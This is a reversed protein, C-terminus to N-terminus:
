LDLKLGLTFTKTFPLGYGDYIGNFNVLEPDNGTFKTVTFLNNATVYLYARRLTKISNKISTIRSLDYGMSASRLKLYSANELFLDQDVRYPNTGSWVNYIPYKELDVDQQWQFIERIAGIANKDENNVFDYRYSARQNLADIGLAYTFALNLDFGKYTLTHNFGGYFQPTYRGKLVKDDDNIINDNNQDKWRADGVEFPVGNNNLRVGNTNTPIESINEYIGTNEFLWFKDISEGVRLLRNGEVLETLGDPLTLLENKNWNFNLSTSWGVKNEHVPLIQANITADIGRNRVSLGNRYQGTYGFEEAVPTLTIQDKDDRQYLSILTSIRKNFFSNNLALEFKDSYAWGLDYGTWGYSYARSIGSFGFYSSVTPDESWGMRSDYQPGVAHRSTYVPKGVRSYAATVDFIDKWDLQKNVNWKAGVSPTFLWRSDRQVSSSGDWRLVSTLELIDDYNYGLKGYISHLNFLEKNVYRLVRLGGRPQLYEIKKRDGSVVNLKIYDNPGDYARAFNYRFLDESYDTGVVASFNSKNLQYNYALKNSFIFRQTYGYYTSMYNITEMLKGPYFLDRIGENYDLSFTSSLTLNSLIDMSLNLSGNVHNSVNDDVVDRDYLSRYMGYVNKNPSLPTSLDPLYAMEAYRDRLNSNRDREMRRANIYSSVTLWSFPLMNVNFVVNYRKLNADDSSVANKTHSGFFSFNARDSGGRLSVDMTYLSATAYYADKWNSPGYFNMNTSDSLYGPYKLKDDATAYKNYFNSRFLNEFQGNVPTVAPKTNMGFYGNVSIERPGSKGGKTTIWVVGNVALPGLEALRIPDKIIEISEISSLDLSALYDTAPGIRNYDYRQIDYAFSNEMGIPVGNVYVTAQNNVADRNSFQVGSLGRVLINQYSGPEASPTQVYVGSAQGTVFSGVSIFPNNKVPKLNISDGTLTLKNLTSIKARTQASLVEVTDQQMFMSSNKLVNWESCYGENLSVFYFLLFVYYYVNRIM